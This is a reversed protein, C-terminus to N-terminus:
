SIIERRVTACKVPFSMTRAKGGPIEKKYLYMGVGVFLTLGIGIIIGKRFRM